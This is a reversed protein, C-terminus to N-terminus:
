SGVELTITGHFQKYIEDSAPLNMQRVSGDVMILGQFRLFGDALGTLLIPYNLHEEGVVPIRTLVNGVFFINEPSEKKEEVTVKMKNQKKTIAAECMRLVYETERELLMKKTEETIPVKPM